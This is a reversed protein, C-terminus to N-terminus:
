GEHFLFNEASQRQGSADELFFSLEADGTAEFYDIRIPTYGKQLRVLTGVDQSPHPGDNDVIVKEGIRLVSGDDSNLIMRFVGSEPVKLFGKFSIAFDDKLPAAIALIDLSKTTGKKIVEQREFDPAKEFRGHCM